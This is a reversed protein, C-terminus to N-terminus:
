SLFMVTEAFPFLCKLLFLVHLDSVAMPLEYVYYRTELSFQKLASKPRKNQRDREQKVLNSKGILEDLSAPRRPINRKYPFKPIHKARVILPITDEIDSDDSDYKPRSNSISRIRETYALM